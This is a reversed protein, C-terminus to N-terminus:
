RKKLYLEEMSPPAKKERYEEQYDEVPVMFLHRALPEDTARPKYSYAGPRGQRQKGPLEM